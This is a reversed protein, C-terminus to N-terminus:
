ELASIVGCAIRAGGQDEDDAEHDDPKEFIVLASGDEDLISGEAEIALPVSLGVLEVEVEGSAVVYLNPLDGVMPGAENLLGHKAGVPNFIAGASAFDGECTGTEHIHFAHPGPPLGALKAKILVGATTEVLDVSGLTKGDRDKVEARAKSGAALSSPALPGLMALAAAAAAFRALRATM